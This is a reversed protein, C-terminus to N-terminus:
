RNARQMHERAVRLRAIVEGELKKHEEESIENQELRQQLLILEERIRDVDYLEREAMDLIQKLIFKFGLAPVSVPATLLQFLM